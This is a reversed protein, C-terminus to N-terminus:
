GWNVNQGRSDIHIFTNYLKVGGRFRFQTQGGTERWEHPTFPIPDGSVSVAARAYRQPADIWTDRLGVLLAHLDPLRSKDPITFDIASFAVHQSLRAADPIHKNYEHARYVSNFTIAAGWQTRVVQLTLITPVINPWIAEEPVRNTPRDTRTLIEAASFNALGLPAIFDSFTPM